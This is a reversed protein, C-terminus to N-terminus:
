NFLHEFVTTFLASIDLNLAGHCFPGYLFWCVSRYLFLLLQRTHGKTGEQSCTDPAVDVM